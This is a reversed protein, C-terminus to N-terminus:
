FRLRATVAIMRMPRASLVQGFTPSNINTDVAAWQVTNLLNNANIQITLSRSGALSIDRQFLGNLQRAGPGPILNRASDGFQGPAPVSFAAVNFFEDVTPDSLSIPAGDYNGRLSGNVGRVLDSAAGLVRATLPTGSQLTLTLQASWEGVISALRGGDHLWRRNPGWPLEVYVSGAIQHRRDFSSLGWEADLDRDNQAVVPGGAGLSSANDMARAVTYSFSGSYGGALRRRVQFTGANMISRGGSSEWIFPQAASILASGPVGLAPARLTDLDTGRIRTYGAQVMWNSTLNKTLTSNWTQITGLAYDKDVGWSNTTAAAPALLAEALTLPAADTGNITETEAFPPQGALQRAISAYSGSNYTIGYGGRLVTTPQLRYAFGIRPALNNSDANLLGSPFAGTYPGIGGAVVPAVSSFDSAADLNAMRHDVEVYPLALEYRLGLNITLKSSRQWNDEVYAAFSHQRLRSTGGVQLAAQQPLGLLFDAFDAGSRAAIPARNSAYVGTFTFSGRSNGNITANSRDLRYDGGLRLQHHAAPHLWMYSAVLRNDTRLSAPASRADTFGTFVLNPVGWNFPDTSASGPYRIGALAAVNETGAFANTTRLAAHTLSATLNQISQRHRVNVTIPASINTNLTDSGLDPFVNLTQTDNRRYQVQANLVVGAARPDGPGAQRRGGAGRGSFSGTGSGGGRGAAGRGPTGSVIQTLRLTMAESATHATTSVHFNESAGPLNPQPVFRLLAAAGPDIRSAPVQNGAFPQGTTPDILQIPSSSFDGNRQADTPVTAYQDFINGTESGTYNVQINTRRSSNSYVGPIRLPGGFTGGFTHQAFNPQAAPVDSRIQYPPSSLASGGFTYTASGQYPRQGRAGRGGLVFAGRRGGAFGGPVGPTRGDLGGPGPGFGAPGPGGEPRPGFGPAFEGTAPDLRGLNVMQFRDNMLGRDLNTAASGGTIAIADAQATELSFGAPLLRGVEEAEHVGVDLAAAGAADAQVNLPQFRAGAGAAQAGGRGAASGPAAAVRGQRISNPAPVGTQPPAATDSDQKAASVSTSLPTRPALALQFDITEDCPPAVLVVDRAAGVFGTLDASLHYAADPTFLITFTGDVDTSTAGKVVGALHVVVSVGPLPINGSTVRGSVRCRPAPSPPSLTARPEQAGAAVALLAGMSLIFVLRPIATM